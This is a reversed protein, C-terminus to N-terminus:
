HKQLCTWGRPLTLPTIPFFFLLFFVLLCCFSCFLLYVKQDQHNIEVHRWKLRRIAGRQNNNLQKTKRKFHSHFSLQFYLLVFLLFSSLLSSLFISSTDNLGREKELLGELGDAWVETGYEGVASYSRARVASSMYQCHTLTVCFFCLLWFSRALSRNGNEAWFSRM